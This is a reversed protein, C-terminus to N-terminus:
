VPHDPFLVEAWVARAYQDGLVGWTNALAAVLSLGRGAEDDQREDAALVHPFTSGGQDDVRVQWRDTFTALHLTFTGGPEGSVTHQIANTALESAILVVDDVGPLDGLSKATWCRVEHIYEPRGHFSFSFYSM